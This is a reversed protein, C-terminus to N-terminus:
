LKKSGASFSARKFGASFSPKPKQGHSSNPLTCPAIGYKKKVAKGGDGMARVEGFHPSKRMENLLRDIELRWRLPISWRKKENGEWLVKDVVM